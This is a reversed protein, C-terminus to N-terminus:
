AADILHLTTAADAFLQTHEDLIDQDITFGVRADIRRWLSDAPVEDDHFFILSQGRWQEPSLVQIRTADFIQMAGSDYYDTMANAIYESVIGEVEVKADGNQM